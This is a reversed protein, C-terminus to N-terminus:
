NKFNIELQRITDNRLVCRKYQTKYIEFCKNCSICRSQEGNKLKQLFDEDAIFPRCMSIFDIGKSLADEM